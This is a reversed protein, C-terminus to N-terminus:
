FRIVPGNICGLTNGITNIINSIDESHHLEYKSTTDGTTITNVNTTADDTSNTNSSTTDNNDSTNISTVVNDGNLNNKTDIKNLNNENLNQSSTMNLVPVTDSLVNDNIDNATINELLDSTSIEQSTSEVLSEEVEPTAENLQLEIEQETRESGEELNVEADGNSYLEHQGIAAHSPITQESNVVTEIDHTLEMNAENDYHEDNNDDVNSNNNTNTNSNSNELDSDSTSITVVNTNVINRNLGLEEDKELERESVINGNSEAIDSQATNTTNDTENLIQINNSNVSNNNNKNNNNDIDDNNTRPWVLNKFENIANAFYGQISEPQNPDDSLPISNNEIYDHDINLENINNTSEDINVRGEQEFKEFVEVFNAGFVRLTTIPCYTESGYHSLFDLRIFRAHQHDVSNIRFEQKERCNKAVFKIPVQWNHPDDSGHFSLSVTFNEPLSSFLEYVALEISAVQIYDCLEVTVWLAPLSCRNLLYSDKNENLINAPNACGENTSIIKAGCDESAYNKQMRLQQQQQQQKNNNTNSFQVANINNNGTRFENLDKQIDNNNTAIKSTESNSSSSASNPSLKNQNIFEDMTPLYVSTPDDPIQDEEHLLNVEPQEQSLNEIKLGPLEDNGTSQPTEGSAVNNQIISDIHQTEQSPTEQLTDIIANNTDEEAIIPNNDSTTDINDITDQEPATEQSDKEKENNIIFPIADAILQDDLNLSESYEQTTPADPTTTINSDSTFLYCLLLCVYIISKFNALHHFSM